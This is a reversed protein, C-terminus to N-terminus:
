GQMESPCGAANLSLLQQNGSSVTLFINNGSSDVPIMLTDGSGAAFPGVVVPGYGGTTNGTVTVEFDAGSTASAGNALNVTLTGGGSPTQDCSVSGTASPDSGPCDYVAYSKNILQRGRYSVTVTVIGSVTLTPHVTRTQGPSLPGYRVGNVTFVASAAASAPNTLVVTTSGASNGATCVSDVHVSPKGGGSPKTGGSPNTRGSARVYIVVRITGRDLNWCNTPLAVHVALVKRECGSAAGKCVRARLKPSVAVGVTEGRYLTRPGASFIVGNTTCGHNAAVTKRALRLVLLRHDMTTILARGVAHIGLRAAYKGLV